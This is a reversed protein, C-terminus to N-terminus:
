SAYIQSTFNIIVAVENNATLNVSSFYLISYAMCQFTKKETFFLEEDIVDLLELFTM